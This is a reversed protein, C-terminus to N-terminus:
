EAAATGANWARYVKDWDYEPAFGAATRCISQILELGEELEEAIM